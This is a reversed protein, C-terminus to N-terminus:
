CVRYLVLLIVCVWGMILLCTFGVYVCVAYPTNQKKTTHECRHVVWYSVREDVYIHCNTGEPNRCATGRVQCKSTVRCCYRCSTTSWTKMTAMTTGVGTRSHYLLKPRQGQTSAVATPPMVRLWPTPLHLVLAVPRKM